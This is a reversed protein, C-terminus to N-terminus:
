RKRLSIKVDRVQQQSTLSLSQRDGKTVVTIAGSFGTGEIMGRIRGGTARGTVTGGANRTAETWRGTLNGGEGAEIDGVLTLRYSDSTCRLTQRLQRGAARVDYDARCRIRERGGDRMTVVGGGNWSGELGAFPGGGQAAAQLGGLSLGALLAAAGLMRRMASDRNYDGVTHLPM